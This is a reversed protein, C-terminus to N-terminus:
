LAGNDPEEVKVINPCPKHTISLVPLKRTPRLCELWNPIEPPVEHSDEDHIDLLSIRHLSLEPDSLLVYKSCPSETKTVNPNCDFLRIRTRKKSEPTKLVRLPFTEDDLPEIRMVIEPLTKAPLEGPIRVTDVDLRWEEQTESLEIRKFSAAPDLQEVEIIEENEKFTPLAECKYEKSVGFRRFIL